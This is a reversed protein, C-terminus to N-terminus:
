TVAGRIIAYNLVLAEAFTSSAHHNALTIAFSGNAVATVSVLYINSTNGSRINVIVVDTIEVVANTVTFTVETEPGLNATHTTISGTPTDITVGTSKSTLQSVSAGAGTGYGMKKDAATSAIGNTTATFSGSSISTATAVGLAPTTFSPSILPAKLDMQTQIASTVGDVYNLETISPVLTTGNISISTPLAVTGTFTPSALPAYSAITAYAGTGLTGGTGINLTSSDTGALTLTNSVSFTKGNTITLTGTSTTITLSNISTATAVGLSPTTFAPSTARVASGTGTTTVAELATAGTNVCIVKSGNGSLTPLKDFGAEILAFEARM